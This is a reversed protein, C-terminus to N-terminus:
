VRDERSAEVEPTYSSDLQDRSWAPISPDELTDLM